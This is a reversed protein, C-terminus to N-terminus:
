LLVHEASRIAAVQKTVGRAGPGLSIVTISGVVIMVKPQTVFPAAGLLPDRFFCFWEMQRRRATVKAQGEGAPDNHSEPLTM